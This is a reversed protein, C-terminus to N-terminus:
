KLFSRGVGDRSSSHRHRNQEGAGGGPQRRGPYQLRQRDLSYDDGNIVGDYNFDGNVWSNGGSNFGNDIAIYDTANVTGDLNTDGYYTYKVLVDTIGVPQGDFTSVLVSSGNSNLEVGLATSHLGAAVTSRIGTSGNWYGSVLNLGLKLQSTITTLNGAHVIMDNNNLDILGSNLLVSVQLVMRNPLTTKTMSVTAGASISVTGFALSVIGSTATTLNVTGADDTLTNIGGGPNFTMTATPAATQTLTDNGGGTTVTISGQGAYNIVQGNLTLQSANDTVVNNGSPDNVTIANTSGAGNAMVQGYPIPNGNTADVTLSDSTGSLYFLLGNLSSQPKIYVLVNNEFVEVMTGAPNLQLVYKDNALNDIVYTRTYTNNTETSEAVDGNPNSPDYDISYSLEAVGAAVFSTGIDEDTVEAAEGVNLASSAIPGLDASQFFFETNFPTSESTAGDNIWAADVSM